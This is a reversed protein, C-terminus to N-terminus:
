QELDQSDKRSLAKKAHFEFRKNAFDETATELHSIKDELLNRDKHTLAKELDEIKDQIQKKEGEKLLDGEKLLAEKVLKILGEAEVKKEVFLREEIDEAGHELSKQVIELIEEEQLGYTPKVEVHATSNTTKEKATVSLLGDADVCYTVEVRAMGAKLPPIGTLEFKALSRCDKAFEREGQVVHFSIATQGDQHTTYEMTQIAPTPHNRPIIKDVIGGMTEVGLSLPVVDLLLTESGKTLAEAQLAAGAAVVEDPNISCLPEQNFLEQLKQGIFPTRTSGGVLVVGKVKEAVTDADKLAKKTIRLTEEVLSSIAAEFEKRTVKKNIKGISFETEDQSSLVEKARRATRLAQKKEELSLAQYNEEGLLINLLAVDFDDGGLTTNGGTALVQFVGKELLLISVDFTGGGLDYIVYVGEIEQDLGYALAAATPENILRLVQLGAIRAAEKTAVRAAEDFYAPVTIVASTVKDELLIEARKKLYKLIEASVEIPTVEKGGVQLKLLHKESSDSISFPVSSTIDELGKGMLRKVSSVTNELSKDASKLAETGVRIHGDEYSVVSPVLSIEQEKLIAVRKEHSVGVVSNTTGLDIGISIGQDKAHPLPTKGPEHIQLLM